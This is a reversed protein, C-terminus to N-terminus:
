ENKLLDIFNKIITNNKRNIDILCVLDKEKFKFNTKLEVLEGSDLKDQVYEKVVLGVGLGNQVCDEIIIDHSIEMLPNLIVDNKQCFKNFNKRNSAGFPLLILPLKPLDKKTIIKGVYKSDKSVVFIDHLKKMSVINFVDPIDNPLHTFAIDILGLQTKKILDSTTPTHVIITVNPYLEHFRKIYPKLYGHTITTSAGINISGQGMNSLSVLDDEAETIFEMAKTIKKYLLEGAPTLAVGEKSRTFLTTNLDRELVKISKSVAPQSVILENAAQTINKNKAVYYFVKYLDLDTKM